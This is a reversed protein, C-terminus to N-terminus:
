VEVGHRKAFLVWRAWFVDGAPISEALAKHVDQVDAADVSEAEQLRKARDIADAAPRSRPENMGFAKSRLWEDVRGRPIFPLEEFTVEGSMTTELAHLKDIEQRFVPEASAMVLPSHSAVFVQCNLESSLDNFVGLLAPLIVRQWKPHLHAELEDILVVLQREPNRALFEANYRHQHWVWVILYALSIMRRVGASEHIIAVEGYSHAITPIEQPLFPLHMPKGPALKGFEPPSIRALVNLFLDFPSGPTAQWNRWDRVVGEIRVQDGLWVERRTFVMAGREGPRELRVPDWVAYSGDARAYVVLGPLVQQRQPRSWTYTKFSFTSKQPQTRITAALQYTITPTTQKQQPRRYPTLDDGIWSGTLAWWIVDLLFSKGLSNDGTVLNLRSGPKFILRSVPGVASTELYSLIGGKDPGVDDPLPYEAIIENWEVPVDQFMQEDWLPPRDDFLEEREHATLFFESLFRSLVGPPTADDDFPTDRYIWVVIPWLLIKHQLHKRLLIVYDSQWGWQRSKPPHLFVDKFTQTNVTQLGSSAYDPNVWFRTKGGGRFPTFYHKSKPHLRFHSKLFEDTVADLRISKTDGVPLQARKAALFTILFFPHVSALERVAGEIHRRTFYIM